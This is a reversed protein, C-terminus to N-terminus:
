EPSISRWPSTSRVEVESQKLSLRQRLETQPRQFQDRPKTRNLSGQKNDDRRGGLLIASGGNQTASPFGPPNGLEIGYVGFKSSLPDLRVEKITIPFGTTQHLALTVAHRLWFNSTFALGLVIVLLASLVYAIKKM